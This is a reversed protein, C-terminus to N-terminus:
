RSWPTPEDARSRIEPIFRSLALGVLCFVAAAGFSYLVITNMLEYAIGWWGLWFAVMFAGLCAVAMFVCLDYLARM